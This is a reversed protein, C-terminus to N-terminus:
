NPITYRRNDFNLRSKQFTTSLFPVNYKLLINENIEKKRKMTICHVMKCM